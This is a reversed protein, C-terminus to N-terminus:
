SSTAAGVLVDEGGGVIPHGLDDVALVQRVAGRKSRM